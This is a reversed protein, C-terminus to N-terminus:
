LEINIPWPPTGTQILYPMNTPNPLLRFPPPTPTPTFTSHHTQNPSGLKRAPPWLTVQHLLPHNADSPTLLHTTHPHLLPLTPRLTPPKTPLLLPLFPKPPLPILPPLPNHNSPPQTPTSISTTLPHFLLPSPETELFSYNHPPNPRHSAYPFSTENFTVHRSLILKGTSM